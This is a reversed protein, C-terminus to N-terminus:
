QVIVKRTEISFSDQIRVFYLGKELNNVDFSIENNVATKRISEKGNVRLLTVISGPELGSIFLQNRAPNPYVTIRPSYESTHLAIPGYSTISGDFDIQQLQYYLTTNSKTSLDEFSYALPVTSNGAGQVKAINEFTKGDISRKLLFFDNNIESTTEWKVVVRQAQRLAFFNTLTVPLPSGALKSSGLTFFGDSSLNINNFVLQDGNLTPTLNLNTWTGSTGSRYLLTYNNNGESGPLGGVGVDSFDFTLDIVLDAGSNTIDFYWAREWRGELLGLDDTIDTKNVENIPTSHGFLVYDGNGFGSVQELILGASNAGSNSGDSETGIGAIDLDNDGNGLDDGNYKDNNVSLGYKGGLYSEVITKEASNLNKNYVILESFSGNLWHNNGNWRGISLTNNNTNVVVENDTANADSGNFDAEHLLGSTRFEQTFAYWTQGTIVDGFRATDGDWSYYKNINAVDDEDNSKRRSLSMQDGRSLGNGVSYVYDNDENGQNLSGFYAVSFVTLPATFSFGISGELYTNAGNFAISSRGNVSNTELSAINLPLTQTVHYDNGSEDAISLIEDGTSGEMDGANLWLKLNSSGDNEGVGAPGKYGSTISSFGVQSNNDITALTYYGDNSLNVNSFVIENFSIGTATAVITWNGSTGARYILKYDTRDSLQIGGFGLGGDLQSFTFDCNVENGSNTIDLYWNRDWRSAITGNVDFSNVANQEKNHGFLVYDGDDFDSNIELKLGVSEAIRNSDGAEVGIGVVNLDSDGNGVEDGDYLDNGIAIDYRASLYSHIINLELTNLVKNYIIVEALRGDLQNTGGNYWQGVRIIGDTSVAASYDTISSSVVGNLYMNHFPSSNNNLQTIINWTQGIITDGLRPSGDNTWSYYRNGIGGSSKRRAISFHRNASGSTGISTVYANESSAQNIDNFFPIVIVTAPANFSAGLSGQLYTSLGDFGLVNNGNVINTRLHPKSTSNPATINNQYGSLDEWTGVTNLDAIGEIRDADLWLVLSSTGSTDEIGGPGDQTFGFSPLSLLLTILFTRQFSFYLM